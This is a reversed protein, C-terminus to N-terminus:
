WGAERAAKDFLAAVPDQPPEPKRRRRVTPLTAAYRPDALSGKLGTAGQPYREIEGGNRRFAQVDAKCDRAPTEDRRSM